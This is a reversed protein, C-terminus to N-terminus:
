AAKHKLLVWGGTVSEDAEYEDPDDEPDPDFTAEVVVYTGPNEWVYKEMDGGLYESAHMVPGSYGHQGSFGSIPSWQADDPADDHFSPAHVGTAHEVSGDPGITM